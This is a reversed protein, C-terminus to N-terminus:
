CILQEMSSLNELVYFTFYSSLCHEPFLGILNWMGNEFGFGFCAFVCKLFRDYFDHM